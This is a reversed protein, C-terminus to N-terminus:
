PLRRAPYDRLTLGRGKVAARTREASNTKEKEYGADEDLEGARDGLGLGSGSSSGDVELRERKLGDLELERKHSGVSDVNLLLLSDKWM